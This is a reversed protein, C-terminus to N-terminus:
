LHSDSRGWLDPCQHLLVHDSRSVSVIETQRVREKGPMLKNYSMELHPEIKTLPPDDAAAM